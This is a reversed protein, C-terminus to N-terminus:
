FSEINTFCHFQLVKSQTNNVGSIKLSKLFQNCIALNVNHWFNNKFDNLILQKKTVQLIRPLINMATRVIMAKMM